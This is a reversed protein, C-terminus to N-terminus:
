FVLIFKLYIKAAYKNCFVVYKRAKQLKAYFIFILLKIKGFTSSM